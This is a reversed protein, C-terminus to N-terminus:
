RALGHGQQVRLYLQGAIKDGAKQAHAPQALAVMPVAAVALATAKKM